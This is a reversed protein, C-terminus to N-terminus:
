NINEQFNNLLDYIIETSQEEKIKEALTKAKEFDIKMIIDKIYLYHAPSVSLEDIGMGVLLPVFIRDAAIEGCVAVPIRNEHAAKITFDILKVVAPHAPQYYYQVYSSNRDVALTYQVLDNTGISLFDCEKSIVDATLAASPIEIMAGIKIEPNFKVGNEGLEKICENIVRKSELIEEVDSIMPFMIKLNGKINARLIAKIQHKFIDTDHLSIRIGRLGLYPNKEKSVNLQKLVKDGGIDITRIIVDEEGMRESLDKYIGYQEDETPFKVNDMFLFETRFLGIGESHNTVVRDIEEPIEINTMLKIRKGDKTKTKYKILSKLRKKYSERQKIKEEYERVTLDDPNTYILGDFGDLIVQQGNQVMEEFEKSGTVMPINMSRAIITTHSTKSGKVLYIGGVKKKYLKAIFSPIIKYAFIVSGPQINEELKKEAELIHSLLRNKVDEFDDAREVSSKKEYSRLMAIIDDYKTVIAQEMSLLKDKILRNIDEKIKEDKLIMKHAVLIDKNEKSFSFERIFLELEEVVNKLVENFKKIEKEIEAKEISKRKIKLLDAELIVLKGIAIGPSLAIATFKNM